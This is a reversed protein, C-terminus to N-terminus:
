LCIYTRHRIWVRLNAGVTIPMTVYNRQQEFANIVASISGDFLETAEKRFVCSNTM